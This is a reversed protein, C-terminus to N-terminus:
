LERHQRPQATVQDDVMKIIKEFDVRSSNARARRMMQQVERAKQVYEAERAFMGKVHRGLEDSSVLRQGNSLDTYQLCQGMGLEQELRQGNIIQDGFIPWVLTPKGAVMGELLSNWGGHSIFLRVAPHSLILRQPAWRVLLHRKQDIWSPSISAQLNAKLSWIFPYRKLAHVIAELQKPQLYAWSGFSVYIM